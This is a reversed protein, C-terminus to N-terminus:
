VNEQKFSDKCIDDQANEAHPKISGESCPFQM